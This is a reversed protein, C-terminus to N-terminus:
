AVLAFAAGVWVSDVDCAASATTVAVYGVRRRSYILGEGLEFASQSQAMYGRECRDMAGAKSVAMAACDCM